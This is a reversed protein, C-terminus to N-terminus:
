WDPPVPPLKTRKAGTFRNQYDQVFERYWRVQDMQVPTLFKQEPPLNILGDLYMLQRYTANIETQRQVRLTAASLMLGPPMDKAMNPDTALADDIHTGEHLHISSLIGPNNLTWLDRERVVVKFGGKGDTEVHNAFEDVADTILWQGNAYFVKNGNRTLAPNVLSPQQVPFSEVLGQKENSTTDGLSSDAFRAQLTAIHANLAAHEAEASNLVNQFGYQRILESGHVAEARTAGNRQLVERITGNLTEGGNDVVTGMSVWAQSTDSLGGTSQGTNGQEGYLSVYKGLTGVSMGLVDYHNAPNNLVYAYLNLGGQEGITDRSIFRALSPSYPRTDYNVLGTETDTYKTAFRFPNAAAYHGWGSAPKTDPAACGPATGSRRAASSCRM